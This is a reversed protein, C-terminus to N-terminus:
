PKQVYQPHFERIRLLTDADGQVQEMTATHSLDQFLVARDYYIVLSSSVLLALICSKDSITLFRLSFELQKHASVALVCIQLHLWSSPVRFQFNITSTM